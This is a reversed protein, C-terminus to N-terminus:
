TKEPSAREDTPSAAADNEVNEKKWEIEAYTAELPLEDTKLEKALGVDQDSIADDPLESERM